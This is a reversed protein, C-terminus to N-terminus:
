STFLAATLARKLCALTPRMSRWALDACDIPIDAKIDVATAFRRKNGRM